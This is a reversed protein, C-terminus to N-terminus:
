GHHITVKLELYKLPVEAHNRSNDDVEIGPSRQEITPSDHKILPSIKWAELLQDLSKIREQAPSQSMGYGTPGYLQTVVM